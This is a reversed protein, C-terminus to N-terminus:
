RRAIRIVRHTVFRALAPATQSGHANLSLSVIRWRDQNCCLPSAARAVLTQVWSRMSARLSKLYQVDCAWQGPRFCSNLRIEM